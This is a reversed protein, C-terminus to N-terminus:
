FISQLLSGVPRPSFPCVFKGSWLLEFIEEKEFYFGLKKSALPVVKMMKLVFKVERVNKISMMDVECSTSWFPCSGVYSRWYSLIIGLKNINVCCYVMVSLLVSALCRCSDLIIQEAVNVVQSVKDRFLPLYSKSVALFLVAVFYVM